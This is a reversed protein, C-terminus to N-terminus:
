KVTKAVDRADRTKIKITMFEPQKEAEELEISSLKWGTRRHSQTIRSSGVSPKESRQHPPVVLERAERPKALSELRVHPGAELAELGAAAGTGRWGRRIRTRTKSKM